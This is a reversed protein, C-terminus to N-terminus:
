PNENQISTRLAYPDRSRKNTHLRLGRIDHILRWSVTSLLTTVFITFSYPILILCRFLWFNDPLFVSPTTWILPPYRTWESTLSKSSRNSTCFLSRLVIDLGIAFHEAEYRRSRILRLHIGICFILDRCLYHNNVSDCAISLALQDMGPSFTFFSQFRKVDDTWYCDSPFSSRSSTTLILVSM